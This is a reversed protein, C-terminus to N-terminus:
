KRNKLLVFSCFGLYVVLILLILPLLIRVLPMKFTLACFLVICWAVVLSLVVSWRIPSKPELEIVEEDKDDSQSM